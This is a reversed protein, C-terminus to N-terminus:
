KTGFNKKFSIELSDLRKNADDLTRQSSMAKQKWGDRSQILEKVRKKLAKNEVQRDQARQKWDIYFSVNTKKKM